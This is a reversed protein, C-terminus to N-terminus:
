ISINHNKKELLLRCVLNERSQLESTHEESRASEVETVSQAPIPRSTSRTVPSNPRSSPTTLLAPIRRSPMTAVSRSSSTSWTSATWRLPVNASLWWAHAYQRASALAPRVDPPRMPWVVGPAPGAPLTPWDTYPAALAPIALRVMTVAISAARYPTVALAIEGMAYVRIVAPLAI